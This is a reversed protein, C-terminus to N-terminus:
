RIFGTKIREESTPRPLQEKGLRICKILYAMNRGLVRLTQLGEPDGEAEAASSGHLQNWYQSSAVPMGSITFYKNIVDFTTSTGGRRAVAVSAGVKMWKDFGSSYFVRDLVGLLSGNPSAYYVPSGIVIGDAAELMDAVRCAVDNLVCRGSRRCGGCATCGGVSSAGIWISKCEVGESILAGEVERLARATTGSRHPSGNLLIVTPRGDERKETIM